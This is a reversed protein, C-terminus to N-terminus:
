SKLSAAKAARTAFFTMLGLQTFLERMEEWDTVKKIAVALKLWDGVGMDAFDSPEKDCSAAAFVKVAQLTGPDALITRLTDSADKKKSLDLASILTTLEGACTVIQELALERVTVEGLKKLTVQEGTNLMRKAEMVEVNGDVKSDTKSDTSM